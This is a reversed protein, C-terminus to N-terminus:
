NRKSMGLLRRREGTAAFSLGREAINKMLYETLDRGALRLIAHHPVICGHIPVTHSVDNGSDFVNDM